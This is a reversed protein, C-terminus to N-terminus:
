ASPRLEDALSEVRRRAAYAWENASPRHRLRRALRGVVAEVREIDGIVASDDFEAMAQDWPTRRRGARSRWDDVLSVVATADDVALAPDTAPSCLVARTLGGGVGLVGTSRRPPALLVHEPRLAGHAMGRRQLRAVTGAVQALAEAAVSARSVTEALGALSDTAVHETWLTSRDVEVRRVAVVGPDRATVLWQAEAEIARRAQREARASLDPGLPEDIPLRRKAVLLVGHRLEATTLAVHLTPLAPM